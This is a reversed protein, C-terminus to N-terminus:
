SDGMDFCMLDEVNTYTKGECVVVLNKSCEYFAAEGINHSNLSGITVKNLAHCGLFMDESILDLVGIDVTKLNYCGKFIGLHTGQQWKTKYPSTNAITCSLGEVKELKDCYSFCSSCLGELCSHFIVQRVGSHAFARAGIYSLDEGFEIRDLNLCNMFSSPGIRSVNKLNIETLNMYNKFCGDYLRKCSDNLVVKKLKDDYTRKTDIGTVFDEVLLNETNEPWNNLICELNDKEFSITYTYGNLKVIDEETTPLGLLLERERKQIYWEKLELYTM